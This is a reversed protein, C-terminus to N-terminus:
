KAQVTVEQVKEISWDGLGVDEEVTFDAVDMEIAIAYATDEDPADVYATCIVTYSATVLFKKLAM